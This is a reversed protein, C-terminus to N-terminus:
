GGKKGTINFIEDCIPCPPIVQGTRPRIAPTFRVDTPKFGPNKLLLKNAVQFEACCGVTNGAHKTGVGGVKKASENLPRAITSPIGNSPGILTAGNPLRGGVITAPNQGSANMSQATTRVEAELGEMAATSNSSKSTMNAATSGGKATSTSTASASTGASLVLSVGGDIVEATEKSVGTSQIAKSTYTSTEQGTVLQTLGAAAVDAGHLVAAGGLVSTAPEPLVFGAAGIQAEAYGGVAKLGGWLRTGVNNKTWWEPPWKVPALGGPDSFAIPNGLVYNYASIDPFEAALPDLSL